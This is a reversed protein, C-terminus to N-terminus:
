DVLMLMNKVVADPKRKAKMVHFNSFVKCSEASCCCLRTPRKTKCEAHHIMKCFDHERCYPLSYCKDLIFQEEKVMAAKMIYDLFQYIPISRQSKEDELHRAFFTTRMTKLTELSLGLGVRCINFMEESVLQNLPASRAFYASVERIRCPLELFDRGQYLVDNIIQGEGSTIFLGGVQHRTAIDDLLHAAQGDLCKLTTSVLYDAMKVLSQYCTYSASQYIFPCHVM